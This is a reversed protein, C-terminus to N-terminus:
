LFHQLGEATVHFSDPFSYKVWNIALLLYLLLVFINKVFAIKHIFYIFIYIYSYYIFYFIFYTFYLYLYLEEANLPIFVFFYM